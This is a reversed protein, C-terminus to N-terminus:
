YRQIEKEIEDLKESIQAFDPREKPDANWCWQMLAAFKTPCNPPIPPRLGQHVVANSAAYIDLQPFPDSRSIIEWIVIGMSYADSKVTFDNNLLSEPAMWKYPGRFQRKETTRLDGSMPFLACGVKKSLGFDAILPEFNSRLLINRAALDRHLIQEKHLHYVGATIGKSISLVMAWSIQYPSRLLKELSGFEIFDTVLCLPNKLDICVGLLPVVNRHPRLNMMLQCESKFDEYEQKSMSQNLLLKVAVDQLRWKARYVIGYAGRGLEVEIQLDNYNIYWHKELSAALNGEVLNTPLTNSSSSISCKSIDISVPNTDSAKSSSQNNSDEEFRIKLHLEGREKKTKAKSPAGKDLLPFWQDLERGNLNSVSCVPVIARGEFENITFRDYDWVLLKIKDTLPEKSYFEFTENWEPNLNKKLVKTCKKTSKDKNFILEVFPDSKGNFDLGILDKAEVVTIFVKGTPFTHKSSNTPTHVSSGLDSRKSTKLEKPKTELSKENSLM